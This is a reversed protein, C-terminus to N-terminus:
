CRIKKKVKRIATFVAKLENLQHYKESFYEMERLADQLMIKRLKADQLVDVIQRYGGESKRDSSLSVFVRYPENNTSLYEVNVSILQRAQWIRYKDGAIKNDWEFCNHLVNSTSKAVQVVDNPNLIGRNQAAIRMLEKIIPKNPM